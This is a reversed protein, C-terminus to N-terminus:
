TLNTLTKNLQYNIANQKYKRENVTYHTLGSYLVCRYYVTIVSKNSISIFTPDMFTVKSYGFVLM